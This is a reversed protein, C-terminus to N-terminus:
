YVRVHRGSVPHRRMEELYKRFPAVLPSEDPCWLVGQFELLNFHMLFPSRRESPDECRSYLGYEDPTTHRRRMIRPIIGVMSKSSPTNRPNWDLMFIYYSLHGIENSHPFEWYSVGCVLMCTHRSSCILLHHTIGNVFREKMLISM